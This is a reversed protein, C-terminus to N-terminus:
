LFGCVKGRAHWDEVPHGVFRQFIEELLELDRHIIADPALELVALDHAPTFLGATLYLEYARYVEGENLAYVAQFVSSILAHHITSINLFM